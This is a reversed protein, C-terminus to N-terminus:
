DIKLTTPMKGVYKYTDVKIYICKCVIDTVSIIVTDESLTVCQLAQMLLLKMEKYGLHKQLQNLVSTTPVYWLLCEPVM